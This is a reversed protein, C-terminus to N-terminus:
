HWPEPRTIAAPEDFRWTAATGLVDATHRVRLLAAAVPTARAIDVAHVEDPTDLLWGLAACAGAAPPLRNWSSPRVLRAVSEDVTVIGTASLDALTTGVADALAAAQLPDTEFVGFNSCWGTVFAAVVDPPPGTFAWVLEAGVVAERAAALRAGVCDAGSAVITPIAAVVVSTVHDWGISCRREEVGVDDRGRAAPRSRGGFAVVHCELMLTRSGWWRGSAATTALPDKVNVVVADVVQLHSRALPALFGLRKPTNLVVASGDSDLVRRVEAFADDLLQEFAQRDFISDEDDCTAAM